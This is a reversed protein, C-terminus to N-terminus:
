VAVEQAEKVATIMEVTTDIREKSREITLLNSLRKEISNLRSKEETIVKMWIDPQSIAISTKEYYKRDGDTVHIFVPEKEEDDSKVVLYRIIRRATGLRYENAAKADDWEFGQHLPNSEDVARELVLQPTVEGYQQHIADLEAGALNPDIRVRAHEHWTYEMIM